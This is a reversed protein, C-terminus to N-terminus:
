ITDFWYLFIVQSHETLVVEFAIARKHIFETLLFLTPRKVKLLHTDLCISGKLIVVAINPVQGPYSIVMAQDLCDVQAYEILQIKKLEKASLVKQSILLSVAM